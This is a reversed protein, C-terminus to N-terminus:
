LAASELMGKLEVELMNKVQEAGVKQWGFERCCNIMKKMWSGKGYKVAEGAVRRM